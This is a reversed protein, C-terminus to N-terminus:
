QRASDAALERTARAWESLLRGARGEQLVGLAVGYGERVSAAAGYCYLAAGANLAVTRGLHTDAAAGGALLATMARANDAPEGGRLDELAGQPVGWAASDIVHERPPAGDARVELALAPGITALEDLGGGAGGPLPTHVILAREVGLQSLAQAYLPLLSPAYVGLLLHRAGAPNLLPGLANFLTRVRLARRVPAVARMAPHFLPAFMFALGCRELCAPIASPPLHAVGLAALVDAAGSRSSASVSGHKAVPVGCAATLVAAATSINMTDQGDGGTGVIEQVARGGPPAVRAGAARMARAFGVLAEWCDGRAAQALLFGALQHSDVRGAAVARAVEEYQAASLAGGGVLAEMQSRLCFASPPAPASPPPARLPRASRAHLLLYVGLAAAAVIGQQMEESQDGLQQAFHQLAADAARARARARSRRQWAALM